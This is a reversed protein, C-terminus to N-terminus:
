GVSPAPKVKKEFVQVAADDLVFGKETRRGMKGTIAAVWSEYTRPAEALKAFVKPRVTVSVEVAEAIVVFSKWGNAETAADSPVETVKLTVELKGPIPMEDGGGSVAPAEARATRAPTSVPQPRREGVPRLQESATRRPAPADLPALDVAGSAVRGRAEDLAAGWRRGEATDPTGSGAKIRDFYEQRVGSRCQWLVRHAQHRSVGAADGLITHLGREPPAERGLYGAYLELIQREQDETM